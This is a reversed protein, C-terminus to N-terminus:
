GRRKKVLALAGLGLLLLSAPEPVTTIHFSTRDLEAGNGLLVMDFYASGILEAATVDFNFSDNVQNGSTWSGTLTQSSPDVILDSDNQATLTINSLVEVGVTIADIITEQIGPGGSGVENFLQGGTGNAIYTAQNDGGYDLDIGIGEGQTNLVFALIGQTNLATMAEILSPYYDAPGDGGEGLYHGESDGAWILIKQADARGDFGLDGSPTLWDGALSVMAKLQSEPFDGGGDPTMSDIASQVEDTDSTFPLRLNLGYDAYNGGDVYNRYDAVGYNIDLGPLGTHISAMIGNFASKIGSIYATMSSTSDTLFLVDAKSVGGSIDVSYDLTYTRTEGLNQTESVTEPLLVGSIAGSAVTTLLLGTIFCFVACEKM